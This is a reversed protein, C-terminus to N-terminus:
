LYQRWQQKRNDRRGHRRLRYRNVYVTRLRQTFGVAGHTRAEAQTREAVKLLRSRWSRALMCPLDRTALENLLQQASTQDPRYRLLVEDESRGYEVAYVGALGHLVERLRARDTTPVSENARRLRFRTTIFRHNPIM